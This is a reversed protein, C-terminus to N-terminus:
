YYSNRKLTEIAEDFNEINNSDWKMYRNGNSFVINPKENDKIRWVKVRYNFPETVIEIVHRRPNNKIKDNIINELNSSYCVITEIEDCNCPWPGMLNFMSFPTQVINIPLLEKLKNIVLIEDVKKIDNNKVDDNKNEEKKNDDKKDDEKKNDVKIDEKINEQKKNDVKIDEKKNDDNNIDYFEFFITFDKKTNIHNELNINLGIKFSTIFEQLNINITSTTDNEFSIKEKFSLLNLNEIRHKVLDLKISQKYITSDGNKNKILYNYIYENREDDYCLQSYKEIEKQFLSNNSFDIDFEGNTITKNKNEIEVSTNTVSFNLGTSIKETQSIDSNKILYIKKLGLKSFVSCYLNFYHETIKDFYIPERIFYNDNVKIYLVDYFPTKDHDTDFYLNSDKLFDDVEDNLIFKTKTTQEYYNRTYNFSTCGGFIKKICKKNDREKKKILNSNKESIFLLFNYKM